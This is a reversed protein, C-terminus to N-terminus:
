DYVCQNSILKNDQKGTYASRTCSSMCIVKYVHLNTHGSQNDRIYTEVQIWGSKSIEDENELQIYQTDKKTM